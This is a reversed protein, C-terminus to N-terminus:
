PHVVELLEDKFELDVDSQAVGDSICLVIEIVQQHLITLPDGLIDHLEILNSQLDLAVSFARYGRSKGGAASGIGDSDGGLKEWHLARGMVIILAGV